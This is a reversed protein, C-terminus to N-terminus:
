IDNEELFSEAGDQDIYQSLNRLFLSDLHSPASKEYLETSLVQKNLYGYYMSIIPSPNNVLASNVHLVQYDTHDGSATWDPFEYINSKKRILSRVIMEFHVFNYAINVEIFADAVMQCTESLNTTGRDKRNLVQEILKIPETAEKSKIEATFLPANEDDSIFLDLPIPKSKDRLKRYYTLLDGNLYLKADNTENICYKQNHAQDVIDFNTVYYLDDDELEEIYVKNFSIFLNSEEFTDSIQISSSDLEFLLNFDESFLLQKSDTTQEHKNSLVQQGLPNGSKTAAYAGASALDKNIEYLAGYCYKCVKGDEGNCTCPSRFSVRKGILHHDKKANLLQLTGRTDYYYRKDLKELYQEDYIDYSVTETSNCMGDYPLLKNPTTAILNLRKNFAMTNM